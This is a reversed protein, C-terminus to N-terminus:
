AVRKREARVQWKSLDSFDVDSHSPIRSLGEKRLLYAGDLGSEIVNFQGNRFKRKWEQFHFFPASAAGGPFEHMDYKQKYLKGEVLQLTDSASVGVACIDKQYTVPAWFMCGRKGADKGADRYSQVPSLEGVDRYFDIGGPPYVNESTLSKYTKLDQSSRLSDRLLAINAVVSALRM